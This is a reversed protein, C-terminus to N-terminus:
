ISRWAARATPLSWIPARKRGKRPLIPRAVREYPTVTTTASLSGAAATSVKIGAVVSSPGDPLGPPTYATVGFAYEGKLTADSCGFDDSGGAWAAASLAPLAIAALLTGKSLRRKM